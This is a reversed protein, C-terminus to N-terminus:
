ACGYLIGGFVIGWLCLALAIGTWLGRGGGHERIREEM